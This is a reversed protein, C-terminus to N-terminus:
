AHDDRLENDADNTDSSTHVKKINVGRYLQCSRSKLCLKSCYRNKLRLWKERSLRLGLLSSSVEYIKGPLVWM